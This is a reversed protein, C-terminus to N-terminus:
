IFNGSNIIFLDTGETEVNYLSLIYLLSLNTEDKQCEINIKTIILELIEQIDQSSLTAGLIATDENLIYTQSSQSKNKENHVIYVPSKRNQGNSKIKQFINYRDGLNKSTIKNSIILELISREIATLVNPSSIHFPKDPPAIM